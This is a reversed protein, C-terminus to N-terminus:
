SLCGIAIQTIITIEPPIGIRIAMGIYGLGPNVHLYQSSERYLGGWEPYIWASPSIRAHKNNIGIQSAHTHGSLTLQINKHQLVEKRWHSVDHSLLITFANQPINHTAKDLNGYQPFPPKGWNEVGAIYLTDNGQVLVTNQNLLLTFGSEILGQKTAALNAHRAELSKWRTYDGYDHNGLVAYKGLSAHLRQWISIYPTLECSFNNVMDGTSCIIDPHQQNIIHVAKSIFTTDSGFNGLHQDTIHAIRLGDFSAPLNPHTIHIERVKIHTRTYTMGIFFLIFTTLSLLIGIYNFIRYKNKTFQNVITNLVHFFIFIFKPLYILIFISILWIAKYTLNPSDTTHGHTRLLIFTILFLASPIWLLLRFSWHYHSQRVHHSLWLDPLLIVMILTLLVPLHMSM